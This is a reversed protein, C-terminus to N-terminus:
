FGKAITGFHSVNILQKSLPNAIGRFFHRQFIQWLAALTKSSNALLFEIVEQSILLVLFAYLIVVIKVNSLFSKKLL